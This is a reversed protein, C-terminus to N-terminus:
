HLHFPLLFLYKVCLIALGGAGRPQLVQHPFINGVRALESDCLVTLKAPATTASPSAPLLPSFFICQGREGRGEWGM